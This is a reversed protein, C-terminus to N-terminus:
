TYTEHFFHESILGLEGKLLISPFVAFCFCHKYQHPVHEEHILANAMVLLRKACTLESIATM